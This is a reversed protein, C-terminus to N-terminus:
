GSAETSEAFSKALEVNDSVDAIMDQGQSRCVKKLTFRSLLGPRIVAAAITGRCGM